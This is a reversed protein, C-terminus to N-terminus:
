RTMIQLWSLVAQLSDMHRCKVQFSSVFSCSRLLHLDGERDLMRMGLTGLM